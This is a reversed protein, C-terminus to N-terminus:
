PTYEMVGPDFSLIVHRWRIPSRWEVEFNASHLRFNQHLNEIELSIFMKPDIWICKMIRVQKLHSHVQLFSLDRQSYTNRKKQWEPACLNGKNAQVLFDSFYTSPQHLYELCLSPDKMIPWPWDSSRERCTMTMFSLNSALSSSQGWWSVDITPRFGPGSNEGQSHGVCMVCPRLLLPFCASTLIVDM